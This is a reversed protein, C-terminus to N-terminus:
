EGERRMASVYRRFESESSKTGFEVRASEIEEWRDGIGIEGHGVDVLGRGDGRHAPPERVSVIVAVANGGQKAHSRLLVDLNLIIQCSTRGLEYGEERWGKV